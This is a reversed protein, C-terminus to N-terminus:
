CIRIVLRKDTRCIAALQPSHLRLMSALAASKVGILIQQAQITVTADSKFNEAIYDKILRIEPPETFRSKNLLNGIADSM